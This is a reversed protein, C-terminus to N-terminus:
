GGTRRRERWARYRESVDAYRAQQTESLTARKLARLLTQFLYGSRFFYPRVEVFCLAAEVAEPEGRLVREKATGAGGPFALADYRAHFAACAEQWAKREAPGKTMQAFTERIRAHLQRIEEARTEIQQRFPQSEM